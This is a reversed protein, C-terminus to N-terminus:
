WSAKIERGKKLGKDSHSVSVYIWIGDCVSEAMVIGIYALITQLADYFIAFITHKCHVRFQPRGWQTWIFMVIAGFNFMVFTSGM